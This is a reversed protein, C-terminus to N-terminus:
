ELGSGRFENVCLKRFAGLPVSLLATLAIHNLWIDFFAFAPQAIQLRKIPDPFVDVAHFVRRFQDVVLYESLVFVLRKAFGFIEQPGHTAMQM